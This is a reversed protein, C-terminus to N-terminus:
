GLARRFLVNNELHIHERLEAELRALGDYLARWTACAHGPAVHDGTLERIRHLAVAHEDHEREMVHIPMSVREGRAGARLAPFLIREEKGMHEQMDEWFEVLVDTLGAPVAPKSAHVREVKQAAGILTPLDRRLTAHYRAEIYDALDAAPRTEWVLDGPTTEVTDLERAIAGADLGAQACAAELTRKGGCCFDLRNRLFVRTAGPHNAALDGLTQQRHDMAMVPLLMWELASAARPSRVGQARRGGVLPGARPSRNAGPGLM